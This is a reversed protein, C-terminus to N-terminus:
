REKWYGPRRRCHAFAVITVAESTARYIVAYPFRRLLYRRTGHEFIPWRSPAAAITDIALDIEGILAEAATANREAYGERAARAEVVAEPHM